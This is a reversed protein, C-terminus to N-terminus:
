IEEGALVRDTLRQAVAFPELLKRRGPARCRNWAPQLNSFKEPIAEMRQIARTLEPTEAVYGRRILSPCGCDSVDGCASFIRFLGKSRRGDLSGDWAVHLREWDMKVLREIERDYVDRKRKAQKKAM